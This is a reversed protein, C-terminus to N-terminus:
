ANHNDPGAERRISGQVGIVHVEIPTESAVANRAEVAAAAIGACCPVEMRLVTISKPEAEQFISELKQRYYALDDLKPCGVLVAHGAVYREHFDPVAFAVCDACVLIDAHKLFPAFPPVLKLQLPWHGLQSPPVEGVTESPANDPAMSRLASGPCGSSPCGGSVPRESEALHEEVAQPDFADAEREVITIADQPCTGLCDGLGDCYVESVLRAKGDIIQLAGEHCAPVCQGCGNCKAEDITVIRRKTSMHYESM